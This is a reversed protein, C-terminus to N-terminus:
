RVETLVNLVTFLRLTSVMRVSSNLEHLIGIGILLRLATL